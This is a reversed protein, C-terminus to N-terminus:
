SGAVSRKSEISGERVFSMELEEHAGKNQYGRFRSVDLRFGEQWKALLQDQHISGSINQNDTQVKNWPVGVLASKRPCVGLRHEFVPLHKQLAFELTNPTRFEAREVLYLIEDTSFINGDLSLPYGWDLEGSGWEWFLLERLIQDSAFEPPLIMAPVRDVDLFPPLAQQRQQVYCFSLNRGLRQSPIAVRPDFSCYLGLDIREIYLADDVLFFVTKSRLQKLLCCLQEKFSSGADQRHFSAGTSEFQIKLQDYADEYGRGSARYLVHLEPIPRVNLRLSTLLGHLQLPRDMSFVIAAAMGRPPEGVHWGGWMRAVATAVDLQEVLASYEKRRLLIVGFAKFISKALAYIGSRLRVIAQAM